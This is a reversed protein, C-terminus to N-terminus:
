RIESIIKILEDKSLGASCSMSYAKDSHWVATHYLEGDGKLTVETGSIQETVVSSYTNYDGSIDENDTEEIRYLIEDDGSSFKIQVLVGFLLSSSSLEYGAPLYSPLKLTYGVEKQIGDISEDDGFPSGAMVEDEPTNPTNAPPEPAATPQASPSKEPPATPVIGPESAPETTPQAGPNKPPNPAVTPKGPKPTRVTSIREDAKPAHSVSPSQTRSVAASPSPSVVAPLTPIPTPITDISPHTIENTLSAATICLAACAAIGAAYRLYYTPKRKKKKSDAAALIKERLEDSVVIKDMEAKYKKSM